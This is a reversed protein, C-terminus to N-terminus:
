RDEISARRERRQSALFTDHMGITFWEEVGVHVNGAGSAVLSPATLSRTLWRIINIKIKVRTKFLIELLLKRSACITEDKLSVQPM